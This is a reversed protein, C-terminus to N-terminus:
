STFTVLVNTHENFHRKLSNEGLSAFGESFFTFGTM